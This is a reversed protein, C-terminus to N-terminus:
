KKRKFHNITYVKFDKGPEALEFTETFENENVIRYTEKARWGAPINEISESSFAILKGDESVTDAKYQVVFGEVHFQRLM